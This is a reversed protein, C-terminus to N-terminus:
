GEGKAKKILESIANYTEDSMDFMFRYVCQIGVGSYKPKGNVIIKTLTDVLEDRLEVCRIGKKIEESSTM